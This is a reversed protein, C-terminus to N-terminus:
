NLYYIGLSTVGAAEEFTGIQRLQALDPLVPSSNTNSIIKNPIVKNSILKYPLHTQQLHSQQLHTQIPSSKTPSSNTPSVLKNSVLNSSIVKNSILKYPLHTQQLHTQIPSSNTHPQTPRPHTTTTSNASILKNSILQYSVVDLCRKSTVSVSIIAIEDKDFPPRHTSLVEFELDFASIERSIGARMKAEIGDLGTVGALARGRVSAIVHLFDYLSDCCM